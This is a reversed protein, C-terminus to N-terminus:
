ETRDRLRLRVTASGTDIVIEGPSRSVSVEGDGRVEVDVDGVVGAYRLHDAGVVVGTVIETDPRPRRVVRVPYDETVVEVKGQQGDREYVLWVAEGPEASSFRVAGPDEDLAQGDIEVLVDGRRLGARGAPGDPDVRYIRPPNEFYIVSHDVDAEKVIVARTELGFGYWSRTTGAGGARSRSVFRSRVAERANEMARAHASVDARVGARAKARVDAQKRLVQMRDARLGDPERLDFTELAQLRGDQGRRVVDFTFDNARRPDYRGVVVAVELEEGDRRVRLELEDGADPRMLLRSGREGVIDVGDVALIVDGKELVGDAPGGRVVRLVRPPEAFVFYRGRGGPDEELHSTGGALMVGLSGRDMNVVAEETREDAATSPTPAALLLGCCALGALTIRTLM